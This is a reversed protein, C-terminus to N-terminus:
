CTATGRAATESAQTYVVECTGATVGNLDWTCSGAACAPAGFGTNASLTAGIGAATALPIGTGSVVNVSTGSMNCTTGTGGAAVYQAQCLASASNLAGVLGDLSAKRADTTVNIFRPLATAALIGLIVIVVVLEVLTFGSTGRKM